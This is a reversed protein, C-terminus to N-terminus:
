CNKSWYSVSLSVTGIETSAELEPVLVFAVAVDDGDANLLSWRSWDM